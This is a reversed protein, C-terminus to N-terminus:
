ISSLRVHTDQTFQEIHFHQTTHSHDYLTPNTYGLVNTSPHKAPTQNSHTVQVFSPYYLYEELRTTSTKLDVTVQILRAIDSTSHLKSSVVNVSRAHPTTYQRRRLPGWMLLRELVLVVWFHLSLSSSRSVISFALVIHILSVNLFARACYSTICVNLYISIYPIVHAHSRISWIRPVVPPQGHVFHFPHHADCRLITCQQHQAYGGGCVQCTPNETDFCFLPLRGPTGPSQVRPSYPLTPARHQMSQGLDGLQYRRIEVGAQRFQERDIV